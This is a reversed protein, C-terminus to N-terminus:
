ASLLCCRMRRIRAVRVLADNAQFIQLDHLNLCQRAHMAEMLAAQILPLLASILWRVTAWQLAAQVDITEDIFIRYRPRLDSQRRRRPSVVGTLGKPGLRHRITAISQPLWRGSFQSARESKSRRRRM